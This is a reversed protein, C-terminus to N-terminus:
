HWKDQDDFPPVVCPARVLSFLKQFLPFYTLHGCGPLLTVAHGAPSGTHWQVQRVCVVVNTKGDGSITDRKTSWSVNWDTTIDCDSHTEDMNISCTM